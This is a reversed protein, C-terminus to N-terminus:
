KRALNVVLPLHDSIGGTYTYGEYTRKPKLGGYQRDETMMAPLQFITLSVRGPGPSTSVLFQDIHTWQGRYKYSDKGGSPMVSILSDPGFRARRLPELSYATFESNFDGAAMLYGRRRASYVSDMMQVLQEAQIKRLWASAGSGRYRSVLHVLFLDLTDSGWALAIHMIDRSESVPSRFARTEWQFSGTRAKRFICAVDMGRHDPGEKHLYSYGYPALIPHATLEELVRANEVECLGVLDPAEGGGSAIIVKALATLKARYRSWTWHRLGEPTFEDDGPLSDNEPYFLNEVNYWIMCLGAGADAQAQIHSIASFCLLLLWLRPLNM